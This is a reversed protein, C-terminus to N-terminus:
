WSVAPVPVKAVTTDPTFTQSIMLTLFAVLSLSVSNSAQRQLGSLRSDLKGESSISMLTM